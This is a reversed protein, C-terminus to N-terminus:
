NVQMCMGHMQHAMRVFAVATVPKCRVYMCSWVCQGGAAGQVGQVRPESGNM